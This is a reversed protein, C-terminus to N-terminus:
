EPSSGLALADKKIRPTASAPFASFSRSCAAAALAVVQNSERQPRVTCLNEGHAGQFNQRQALRPLSDHGIRNEPTGLEDFEVHGVKASGTLAPHLRTGKDASSFWANRVIYMVLSLDPAAIM